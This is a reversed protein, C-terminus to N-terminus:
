LLGGTADWTDSWDVHVLSEPDGKICDHSVLAQLKGIPAPDAVIRLTRGKRRVELPKGTELTKDLLRYVNQRLQSATVAM